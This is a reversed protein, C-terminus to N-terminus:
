SVIALGEGTMAALEAATQDHLRYVGRFPDPRAMEDGELFRLRREGRRNLYRWSRLMDGPVIRDRRIPTGQRGIVVETTCTEALFSNFGPAPVYYAERGNARATAILGRVPEPPGEDGYGCWFLRGTGDRRYAARLTDMVSGDRGSYGVVILDTDVVREAMARRLTADHDRLEEATNKLTDYRFDGHLAVHVLEGARRPRSVQGPADLTVEVVTLDFDAAARVTLGDFNTTWISEVVGEEALLCVLGYGPAPRAGGVLNQFYQRRADPLPYCEKAYFGYEDPDGEEPYVGQADLWRQIRRRVAPLSLEGLQELQPEETKVIERKWQWLCTYASPVGSSISTGAGLLFAHPAGRDVGVTRVFAAFDLINNRLNRSM